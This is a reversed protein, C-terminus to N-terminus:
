AIGIGVDGDKVLLRNEEVLDGNVCFRDGVAPGEVALAEERNTIDFLFEVAVVVSSGQVGVPQIDAIEDARGQM